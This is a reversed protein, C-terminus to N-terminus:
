RQETEREWEKCAKLALCAMNVCRTQLVVDDAFVKIPMPYGDKLLPTVEKNFKRIGVNATKSFLEPSPGGQTVGIAVQRKTMTDYGKTSVSSPQLVM